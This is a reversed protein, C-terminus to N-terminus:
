RAGGDDIREFCRSERGSPTPRTNVTERIQGDRELEAFRRCVQVATLGAVEAIEHATWDGGRAMVALIMRRHEGALGRAQRAAAHSTEPDATRARQVDAFTLQNM